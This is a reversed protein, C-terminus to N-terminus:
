RKCKGSKGRPRCTPAPAPKPHPAPAIGTSPGVPPPTARAPAPRPIVVVPRQEQNAPANVELLRPNRRLLEEARRDHAVLARYQEAAIRAVADDILQQRTSDNRTQRELLAQITDNQEQLEMLVARNQQSTEAQRALLLALMGVALAVMLYILVPLALRPRRM